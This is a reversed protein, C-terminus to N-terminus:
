MKFVLIFYIFICGQFLAKKVHSYKEIDSVDVYFHSFCPIGQCDLPQSETSESGLTCTQGRTPSSPDQLGHPAALFLVFFVKFFSSFCCFCILICIFLSFM